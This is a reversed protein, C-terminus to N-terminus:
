YIASSCIYHSFEYLLAFCLFILSVIFCLPVSDVLWKEMYLFSRFLLSNLQKRHHTEWGTKSRSSM